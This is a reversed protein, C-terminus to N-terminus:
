ESFLYLPKGVVQEHRLLALFVQAKELRFVKHGQQAPVPAKVARMERQLDVIVPMIHGIDDAQKWGWASGRAAAVPFKEEGIDQVNGMQLFYPFVAPLEHLLTTQIGQGADGVALCRFVVNGVVVQADPHRSDKRLLDSHILYVKSKPQQKKPTTQKQPMQQKQAVSDEQTGAIQSRLPKQALLCFGFLCLVSVLLARHGNIRYKRNKEKQM